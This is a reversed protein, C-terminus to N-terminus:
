TIKRAIMNDLSNKLSFKITDTIRINNNDSNIIGRILDVDDRYVKALKDLMYYKDDDGLYVVAFNKLYQMQWYSPKDILNRGMIAVGHIKGDSNQDYNQVIQIYNGLKPHRATWGFRSHLRSDTCSSSNCWPTSYTRKENRNIYYEDKNKNKYILEWRFTMANHWEIPYLRWTSANIPESFLYIGSGNDKWDSKKGTHLPKNISYTLNGNRIQELTGLIEDDKLDKNIGFNEIHSTKYKYYIGIIIIIIIFLIFFNIISNKYKNLNRM